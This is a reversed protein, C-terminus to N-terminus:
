SRVKPPNKIQLLAGDVYCVSMKQAERLFKIEEKRDEEAGVYDMIACALLDDIMVNWMNNVNKALNFVAMM